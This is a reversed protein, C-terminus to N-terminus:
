HRKANWLCKRSNQAVPCRVNQRPGKSCKVPVPAADHMAVPNANDIEAHGGATPSKVEDVKQAAPRGAQQNRM